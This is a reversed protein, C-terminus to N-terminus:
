ILCCLWSWQWHLSEIPLIPMLLGVDSLIEDHAENTWGYLPLRFTNIM